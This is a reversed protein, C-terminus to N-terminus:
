LVRRPTPQVLHLIALVKWPVLRQTQLPDLPMAQQMPPM